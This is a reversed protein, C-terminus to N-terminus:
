KAKELHFVPSLSPSAFGERIFFHLRLFINM